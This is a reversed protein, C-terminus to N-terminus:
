AKQNNHGWARTQRAWMWENETRLFPLPSWEDLVSEGACLVIIWQFSQQADTNFFFFFILGAQLIHVLMIM